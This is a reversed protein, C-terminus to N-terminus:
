SKNYCKRKEYYVSNFLGKKFDNSSTIITVSYIILFLIIFAVFAIKISFLIIDMDMQHCANIINLENTFGELDETVYLLSKMKNMDKIEILRKFPDITTYIYFFVILIILLTFGYSIVEAYPFPIDVGSSEIIYNCNDYSTIVTKLEEYIKVKDSKTIETISGINNDTSSTIKKNISYFVDQISKLSYTLEKTNKQIIMKNYEFVSNLKRKWAIIIAIIFFGLFIPAIIKIWKNLKNDRYIAEDRNNCDETTQKFIKENYNVIMLYILAFVIVSISMNIATNWLNLSNQKEFYINKFNKKKTLVADNTDLYFGNVIDYFYNIQLNNTLEDYSMNDLNSIFDPITVYKNEDNNKIFRTKNTVDYSIKKIIDNVEDIYDSYKIDIGLITEVIYSQYNIIDINYLISDSVSLNILRERKAKIIDLKDFNLFKNYINSSIANLIDMNDDNNGYKLVISNSFYGSNYKKIDNGEFEDIINNYLQNIIPIFLNIQNIIDPNKICDNYNTNGCNIRNIIDMVNSNNKDFLLNIQSKINEIDNDTYINDVNKFNIINISGKKYLFLYINYIYICLLEYLSNFKNTQKVTDNNYYFNNLYNMIKIIIVKKVINNNNDNNNDTNKNIILDKYYKILNDSEKFLLIPNSRIIIKNINIYGNGNDYFQILLTEIGTKFKNYLDIDNLNILSDIKLGYKENPLYIDIDKLKDTFKKKDIFEKRYYGLQVFFVKAGKDKIIVNLYNNLDNDLLKKQENSLQIMNNINKIFLIIIALIIEYIIVYLILTLLINNGTKKDYQIKMILFIMMIFFIFILALIYFVLFITSEKKKNNWYSKENSILEDVGTAFEYLNIIISAKENDDIKSFNLNGNNDSSNKDLYDLIKKYYDGVVEEISASM